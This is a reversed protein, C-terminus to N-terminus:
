RIGLSKKLFNISHIKLSNFLTININLPTKLININPKENYEFIRNEFGFIKALSIFRNKPSNKSIFSVFSKNFIISFVTGHYSNTIVAKCNQIGFIFKKISDIEKKKVNFIDYKLNISSDKIFKLITKEKSFLYTLIFNKNRLKVRKYGNIINLYYQKDILFTPDLVLVSNFGLYKKIKTIDEKERVSIGKFNKLCDKAAKEENKTFTWNDFGLSAGYIFKKMKWNKAFHLFAIDYFTYNSYKRWTQDSNVM